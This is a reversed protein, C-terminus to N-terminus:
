HKWTKGKWINYIASESIGFQLALKKASGKRRRIEAVEDPTLKCLFGRGKRGMEALNDAQTGLRLHAPNVCAPTDCSHLVLMFAPIPGNAEVWAVRHAYTEGHKSQVGYGNAFKPGTWLICPEAM